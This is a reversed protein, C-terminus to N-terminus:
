TSRLVIGARTLTVTRKELALKGNVFVYEIGESFQNPDSFTAKDHVSNRDFITLDAKNGVRIVGRNSLGIRRAPMSTMKRVAEELSLVGQERVYTSLVRPFTGYLRPHPKGRGPVGYGDSAIMSLPSRIVAKVDEESMEFLVLQATGYKEFLELVVEVPASKRSEAIEALTKGELDPAGGCYAVIINEAGTEVLPREEEGTESLMSDIIKPRLVSVRQKAMSVGGSLVWSPILTTLATSGARYPYVDCTADIGARAAQEIIQLTKTVRGWNNKGAAKHHSIQLPVRAQRAISVAEEVAEILRGSEGRMHSAYFGGRSAVVRSLEVLEDTNAYAGPTYILGSSLGFAGDTLAETLLAKMRELDDKTPKRQDFGMVNARITNHGALTGVNIAPRREELRNLYDNLSSWDWPIDAAEPLVVSVAEKVLSERSPLVPAASFGCNGVVVTTVGQYLENKATPDLLLTFDAHTHIDIFGPSIVLDEADIIRAAKPEDSGICAIEDGKVVLNARCSPGGLGDVIMGKRILFDM